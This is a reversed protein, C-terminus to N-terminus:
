RNFVDVMVIRVGRKGRLHVEYSKELGSRGINDGSKYYPNNDIIQRDAESIYGLLHGAIAHPYSRVTRTQTYFGPFSYLKEHIRAYVKASIEKEFVSPKRYSFAKAKSLKKELDERSIGILECFDLTDFEQVQRPIVMLDYAAENYVMLKGERDYVLGRAPYETIYRSRFLM